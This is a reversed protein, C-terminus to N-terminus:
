TVTGDSDALSEFHGLNNLDLGWLKRTRPQIYPWELTCNGWFCQCDQCQYVWRALTTGGGLNYRAIWHHWGCHPCDKVAVFNTWYHQLADIDNHYMRGTSKSLEKAASKAAKIGSRKNEDM